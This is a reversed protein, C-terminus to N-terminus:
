ILTLVLLEKLRDIERLLIYELPILDGSPLRALNFKFCFEDYNFWLRRWIKDVAAGRKFMKELYMKKYDFNLLKWLEGERLGWKNEIHKHVKPVFPDYELDKFDIDSSWKDRRCLKEFTKEDLRSAECKVAMWLEGIFTAGINPDKLLKNVRDICLAVNSFDEFSNIKDM